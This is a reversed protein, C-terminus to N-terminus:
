IYIYIYIYIYVCLISSLICNLLVLFLSLSLLLFLDILFYFNGWKIMMVIVVVLSCLVSFRVVAFSAIIEKFILLRNLSLFRYFKKSIRWFLVASIVRKCSVWEVLSISLLHCFSHFPFDKQCEPLIVFDKLTAISKFSFKFIVINCIFVLSRPLISERLKRKSFRCKWNSLIYPGVFTELM